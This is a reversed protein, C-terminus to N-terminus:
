QPIEVIRTAVPLQKLNLLRKIAKRLSPRSRAFMKLVDHGPVEVRWYRLTKEASVGPPPAGRLLEPNPEHMEGHRWCPHGTARIAKDCDLCTTPQDGPNDTPEGHDPCERPNSGQVTVVRAKRPPKSRKPTGM